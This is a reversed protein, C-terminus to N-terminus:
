TFLSKLWDLLRQLPPPRKPQARPAPTPTAAPAAPAGGPFRAPVPVKRLRGPFRDYVKLHTIQPYVGTRFLEMEKTRRGIIEPPKRWGMFAAAARDLDGANLHQTLRARFIGGTNFDFSVLADFQHQHLPVKVADNVRAEYKALDNVFLDLVAELTLPDRISMPDPPGASRTHGVGVTWVGMSDKYPTLVAAEHEVIALMGATSVKMVM